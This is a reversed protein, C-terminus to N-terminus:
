LSRSTFRHWKGPWSGSPLNGPQPWELRVTLPREETASSSTQSHTDSGILWQASSGSSKLGVESPLCRRRRDEEWSNRTQPRCGTSMLKGPATHVPASRSPSPPSASFELEPQPLRLCRIRASPCSARRDTVYVPLTLSVSNINRRVVNPVGGRSNQQAARSTRGGPLRANVDRWHRLVRARRPPCVFHTSKRM